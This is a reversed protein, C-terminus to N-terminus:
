TELHSVMANAYLALLRDHAHKDPTATEQNTSAKTSVGRGQSPVGNQQATNTSRQTLPNM